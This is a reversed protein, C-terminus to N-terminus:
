ERARERESESESAREPGRKGERAREPERKSEKARESERTEDQGDIMLTLVNYLVDDSRPTCADNCAVSRWKVSM